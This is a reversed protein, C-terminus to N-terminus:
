KKALIVSVSEGHAVFICFVSLQKQPETLKEFTSSTTEYGGLSTVASSTTNRAICDRVTKVESKLRDMQAQKIAAEEAEWTEVRALFREKWIDPLTM